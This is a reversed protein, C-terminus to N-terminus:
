GKRLNADGISGQDAALSRIKTVQGRGATGGPKQTVVTANSRNM